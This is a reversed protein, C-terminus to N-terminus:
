ERVHYRGGGETKMKEVLLTDEVGSRERAEEVGSGREWAQGDEKAEHPGTCMDGAEQKSAAM